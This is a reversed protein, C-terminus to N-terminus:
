YPISNKRKDMKGILCYTCTRIKADLIDQKSLKWQQFADTSITKIMANEGAHALVRHLKWVMKTKETQELDVQHLIDESIREIDEITNINSVDCLQYLGNANPRFLFKDDNDRDILLYTDKKENYHVKFLPRAMRQSIISLRADPKYMGVGFRTRVYRSHILQDM